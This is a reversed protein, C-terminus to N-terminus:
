QLKECVKRIIKVGEVADTAYFDCGVEKAWNKDTAGGGVITKVKGRIGAERLKEEILKQQPRTTTLLASSAVFDANVEIAKKAFNEAPVDIGLDYVQYGSIELLVKFIDKGINHVDGQVTGLVIMGKPKNTKQKKELLKQKAIEAGAMCANAALLLETLFIEEKGFKDGVERIAPTLGKDLIELPNMGKEIAENVLRKVSDEDYNLIAERILRIYDVM